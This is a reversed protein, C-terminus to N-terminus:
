NQNEKPSILQRLVDFWHDGSQLADLEAIAQPSIARDFRSGLDSVIQALAISNQIYGAALRVLMQQRTRVALTERSPDIEGALLEAGDRVLVLWRTQDFPMLQYRSINGQCAGCPQPCGNLCLTVVRVGREQARRLPEALAHAEEPWFIALLSQESAELLNAAQELLTTLGHLNQTYELAPPAAVESLAQVAAELSTKHERNLKSILEAPALPAYCLGDPTDVRLVAGREELKRLVAYINARPIGSRKALAYGNVPNKQLLAVYAQAEYQSFGLQQLHEVALTV